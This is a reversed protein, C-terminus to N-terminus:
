MTVTLKLDKFKAYLRITTSGVNDAWFHWFAYCVAANSSTETKTLIGSEQLAYNMGIASASFQSISDITVRNNSNITYYVHYQVNIVGSTMYVLRSWSGVGETLDYSLRPQPGVREAEGITITAPQGQWQVEFSQAGIKKLDIEISADQAALVTASTGLLALVLVLVMVKRLMRKM